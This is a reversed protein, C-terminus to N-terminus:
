GKSRPEQGQFYGDTDGLTNDASLRVKMVMVKLMLGNAKASEPSSDSGGTSKKMGGPAPSTSRSHSASNTGTTYSKLRSPLAIRVMTDLHHQRTALASCSIGQFSTSKTNNGSSFTNKAALFPNTPQACTRSQRLSHNASAPTIEPDQVAQSNPSEHGSLSPILHVEICNYLHLLNILTQSIHQKSRIKIFSCSHREAGRSEAQWTKFALRSALSNFSSLPAILHLIRDYVTGYYAHYEIPFTESLFPIASVSPM